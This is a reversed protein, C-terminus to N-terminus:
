RWSIIPAEIGAGGDRQLPGGLERIIHSPRSQSGCFVPGDDVVIEDLEYMDTIVEDGFVAGDGNPIAVLSRSKERGLPRGLVGVPMTFVRLTGKVKGSPVIPRIILFGFGCAEPMVQQLVRRMTQFTISAAGGLLGQVLSSTEVVGLRCSVRGSKGATQPVFELAEM